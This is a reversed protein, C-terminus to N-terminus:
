AHGADPTDKLEPDQQQRAINEGGTVGGGAQEPQDDPNIPVATALRDPLEPAADKGKAGKRKRAPV